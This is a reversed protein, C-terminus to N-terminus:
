IFTRLLSQKTFSSFSYPENWCSKQVKKYQMAYNKKMGQSNLVPTLFYYNYYYYYYSHRRRRRATLQYASDLCYLALWTSMLSLLMCAGYYMYVSHCCFGYQLLYFALLNFIKIADFFCVDYCLFETRVFWLNETDFKKTCKSLSIKVWLTCIYVM